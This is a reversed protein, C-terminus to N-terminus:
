SHNTVPSRNELVKSLILSHEAESVIFRDFYKALSCAGVWVEPPHHHPHLLLSVWCRTINDM